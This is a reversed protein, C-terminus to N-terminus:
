PFELPCFDKSFTKVGYQGFGVTYSTEDESEVVGEGYRPHLARKAGAPAEEANEPGFVDQAGRKKRNELIM